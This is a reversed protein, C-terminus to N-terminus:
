KPTLCELTVCNKPNVKKLFYFKKPPGFSKLYIILLPNHVIEVAQIMKVNITKKGDHFNKVAKSLTKQQTKQKEKKAATLALQEKELRYCFM